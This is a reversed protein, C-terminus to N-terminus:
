IKRELIKDKRYLIKNFLFTSLNSKMKASIQRLNGM